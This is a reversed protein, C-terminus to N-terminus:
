QKLQPVFTTNLNFTNGVIAVLGWVSVMVTIGIIGWLMFMRGKEKKAEEADNIVYQVVGWVFMVIALALILPIVSSNIICTVYGILNQLKPNTALTCLM